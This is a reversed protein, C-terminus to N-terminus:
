ASSVAAWVSWQVFMQGYRSTKTFGDHGTNRVSYIPHFTMSNNKYKQNIKEDPEAGLTFIFFFIMLGGYVWIGNNFKTLSVFFPSTEQNFGLQSDLCNRMLIDGRRLFEDSNPCTSKTASAVGNPDM